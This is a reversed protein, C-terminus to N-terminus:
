GGRVRTRSRGGRTDGSTPVVPKNIPASRRARTPPAALPEPADAPEPETVATATVELGARVNAVDLHLYKEVWEEFGAYDSAAQASAEPNAGFISEYTPDMEAKGVAPHMHEVLVLAMYRLCDLEQGLRKWADDAWQHRVAPMALWGLSRAIVSSMFVATPHGEGHILDDGYAIGPTELTKEVIADWGPTRFLVDDGFAGLIAVEDWLRAAVVNLAAVYGIREPLEVLSEGLGLARYEELKPDDADVIAVIGVSEAATDRISAISEALREPRGRSPILIIISM